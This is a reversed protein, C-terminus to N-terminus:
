LVHADADPAYEGRELWRRPFLVSEVACVPLCDTDELPLHETMQWVVGAKDLRRELGM